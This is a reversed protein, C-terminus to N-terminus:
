ATVATTGTRREEHPLPAPQLMRFGCITMLVICAFILAGVAVHATPAAWVAIAPWGAGMVKMLFALGGLIMQAAILAALWRGLLSLPRVTAYRELTWMAAWSLVLIVVVAWLIHGILAERWAFHRYAAGFGLQLLVCVSACFCGRQYFRAGRAEHATEVACWSASTLLATVTALCFGLQGWIGHVMALARSVETVRLGGLVGQVVIMALTGGAAARVAGGTRWCAALSAIALMGVTWGILRHGHEWLKANNHLWGPPNVFHSDSTPWDPFAMGAGKSTVGAGVLILPFIFVATLVAFLHAGRRYM